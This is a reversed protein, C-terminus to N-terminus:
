SEYSAKKVGVAWIVGNMILFIIQSTAISMKTKLFFVFLVLNICILGFVIHKNRMLEQKSLPHNRNTLPPVCSFIILFFLGILQAVQNQYLMPFGKMIAVTLGYSLTSLIFCTESRKAHYGGTFIRLPVFFVIFCIFHTLERCALSIFFLTILLLGNLLLAELAYIHVDQNEADLLEKKTLVMAIHEAMYRFM